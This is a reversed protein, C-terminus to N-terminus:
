QNNFSANRLKPTVAFDASHQQQNITTDQDRSGTVSVKSQFENAGATSSNLNIVGDPGMKISVDGGYTADTSNLTANNGREVDHLKGDITSQNVTLQGVQDHLGGKVTTSELDMVDGSSKGLRAVLDGNVTSQEFTISENSRRGRISVSDAIVHSLTVSSSASGRGDRLNLSSLKDTGDGSINIVSAQRNLSIALSPPATVNITDTTLSKGGVKFTTGDTGTMVVQSGTYSVSFDAGKSNSAPGHEILHIANGQVHVAITASLLERSELNELQCIAAPNPEACLRHRARRAASHSPSLKIWAAFQRTWNILTMVIEARFLSPFNTRVNPLHRDV